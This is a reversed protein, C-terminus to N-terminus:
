KNLVWPPFMSFLFTFSYLLSSLAHEPLLCTNSSLCRKDLKLPTHIRHPQKQQDENHLTSAFLPVPGFHLTPRAPQKVIALAGLSLTCPWIYQWRKMFLVVFYGPCRTLINKCQFTICGVNVKSSSSPCEPALKFSKAFKSMLVRHSYCIIYALYYLYDLYYLSMNSFNSLFFCFFVTQKLTCNLNFCKFTNTQIHDVYKYM